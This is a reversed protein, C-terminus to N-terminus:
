LRLSLYFTQGQYEKIQNRPPLWPAVMADNKAILEKLNEHIVFGIVPVMMEPLVFKAQHVPYVIPSAEELVKTKRTGM